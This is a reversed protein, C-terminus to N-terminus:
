KKKKKGKAKNISRGKKTTTSVNNGQKKKTFNMHKLPAFTMRHIPSPGHTHVARQHEATPYGKNNKINYMPYQRDYKQMIRDRTVKALISAAAICFVKADGKIVPEVMKIHKPMPPDAARITGNPRVAEKHGYPARNGDILIYDAKIKMNEIARHMSLMTAQLINVKDIEENDAMGVGWFIKPHTTIEEYLDEREKENLTKSDAIKEVFPKTINTPIHCCAAVVPGCLPGRGAEDVGAIIKYGQKLLNFEKARLKKSASVSAPKINSKVLTSVKRRSSQREGSGLAVLKSPTTQLSALRSSRRSRQVTVPKRTQVGGKRKVKAVNRGMNTLLISLINKSLQDSMCIRAGEIINWNRV